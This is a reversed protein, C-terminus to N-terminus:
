FMYKEFLEDMNATYSLSMNVSNFLLDERIIENQIQMQEPMNAQAQQIRKKEEETAKRLVFAKVVKENDIFPEPMYEGSFMANMFDKEQVIQM